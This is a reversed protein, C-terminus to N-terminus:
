IKSSGHKGVGTEIVRELFEIRSWWAESGEGTALRSVLESKILDLNSRLTFLFIHFGADVSYAVVPSSQESNIASCAKIINRTFKNM